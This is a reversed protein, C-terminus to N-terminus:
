GANQNNASKLVIASYPRILAGSQRSEVLYIQRNFDIDFQEFFNEKGANKQGVNYDNLDLIVAYNGAGMVAAPVKVVRDVGMAAALENITKYLRHGFQDEMLLMKSVKKQEIFATLNGSGQYDDQALVASTIIAHELSEGQEPTVTKKITFLDEDSVVPIIHTDNVKDEDAASRGDGFIYARAKEEKFKVDMESKIWPLIDFDVDIIDDRDFKQKKYITTPSVSRKLLKFVEEKKYKGKIYGKARAEDETIDAFIVRVNAFPTSHVGAMITDIWGRPQNDIFQPRDYFNKDESKIFDLNEIGFEQAHALYSERLSGYQKADKLVTNLADHILTDEQRQEEGEFVNHKMETEEKKDSGNKDDDKKDSSNKGDNLAQGIIGMVVNMQKDNLTDLVDKVTEGDKKEDSKNDAEPKKEEQKEDSKKEEQKEEPKKKDDSHELELEGSGDLYMGTYIIAEDYGGDESHELNKEVICAGPNASALVLSLECIRGHIVDGAKQKLQNAYISLSEIDGHKVLKKANEGAETDNFTCYAYVGKDTNKLLAHGLVNKAEKHDHNWVLPVTRGDQDAFANKRITRGDSCLLDNVTAWGAFDYEM